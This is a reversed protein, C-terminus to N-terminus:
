SANWHELSYGDAGYHWQEREGAPLSLDGQLWAHLLRRAIEAMPLGERAAKVKIRTHEAETLPVPLRKDM